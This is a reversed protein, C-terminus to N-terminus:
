FKKVRDIRAIYGSQLRVATTFPNAVTPFYYYTRDYDVLNDVAEYDPRGARVLLEGETMGRQLRIYVDFDMGRVSPLTPTPVQPVVVIQPQQAGQAPWPQVAVPRQDQPVGSEITGGPRTDVPRSRLDAPPKEGYNIVGREDVWRYADAAVCAGAAAAILAGALCKLTRYM